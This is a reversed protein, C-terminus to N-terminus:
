KAEKFLFDQRKSRFRCCCCWSSSFNKSCWLRPYKYSFIRRSTIADELAQSKSPPGNEKDKEEKDGKSKDSKEEPDASYLKKIMSNHLSFGQFEALFYYTFRLVLALYSGFRVFTDALAGRVFSRRQETQSQTFTFSFAAGRHRDDETVRGDLDEYPLTFGQLLATEYFEIKTGGM